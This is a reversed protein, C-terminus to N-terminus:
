VWCKFDNGWAGATEWKRMVAGWLLLGFVERPAGRARTANGTPGKALQLSPLLTKARPQQEPVALTGEGPCLSM